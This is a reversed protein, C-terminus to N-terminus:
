GWAHIQMLVHQSDNTGKTRASLKFLYHNAFGTPYVQRKAQGHVTMLTCFERAEKPVPCRQWSTSSVMAHEYDQM